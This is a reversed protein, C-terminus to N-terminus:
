FKEPLDLFLMCKEELRNAVKKRWFLPFWTAHSDKESEFTTENTM